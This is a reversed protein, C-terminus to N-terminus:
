RKTADAEMVEHPLLLEKASHAVFPPVTMLLIAPPTISRGCSATRGRLFRCTSIDPPVPPVEQSRNRALLSVCRAGEPLLLQYNM